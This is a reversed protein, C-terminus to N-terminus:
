LAIRLVGSTGDRLYKEVLTGFNAPFVRDSTTKLDDVPWWRHDRMVERELETWGDRNIVAASVRVLFFHERSFTPVGNFTLTHEGVWLEPGVEFEAFGTEERVERELAARVDEDPEIAGGPTAWFRNPGGAITGEPLQFEFLLVRNDPDLMVARATHRTKM